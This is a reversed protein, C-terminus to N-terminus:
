KGLEIMKQECSSITDVVYQIYKIPFNMTMTYDTLSEGAETNKTDVMRIKM